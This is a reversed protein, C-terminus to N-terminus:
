TKLFRGQSPYVECHATAGFLIPGGTSNANLQRFFHSFSSHCRHNIHNMPFIYIYSYMYIYIAITFPTYLDVEIQPAAAQVIPSTKPSSDGPAVLTRVM